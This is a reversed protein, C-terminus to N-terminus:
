YQGYPLKGNWIMKFMNPNFAEVQINNSKTPLPGPRTQNEQLEGDASSPMNPVNLNIIGDIFGAELADESDIWIEYAVAKDFADKGIKSRSIINANMKDIFRQLSKLLSLMNPLQGQTGFSAPHYMLLAQDLSYRKAGYSHIMAAMSACLRTCVTNVPAKSAQMQAIITAGDIVSGGPSDILLYIPSHSDQKELRKLQETVERASNFDVAKVLYVVRNEPVTTKLINKSQVKINSQSSAASVDNSNTSLPSAATTTANNFTLTEQTYDSKHNVKAATLFTVAVTALVVTGFVVLAKKKM